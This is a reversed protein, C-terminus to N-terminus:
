RKEMFRYFAKKVGDETNGGGMRQAVQIWSLNQVFRLNIIRRMYSDNLSYMFEEVQNVTDAVRVRLYRLRSIREELLLKKRMLETKKHSYESVPVGEINFGQIGGDGGYVRDKVTGGEEIEAIRKQLKDIQKELRAITDELEVQEKRLDDYQNLIEKTVM